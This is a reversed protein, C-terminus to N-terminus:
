NRTFPRPRCRRRSTRTLPDTRTLASSVVVSFAVTQGLVQGVADAM